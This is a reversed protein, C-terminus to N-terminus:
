RGTFIQKVTRIETKSLFGALVLGAPYVCTLILKQVSGMPLLQSAAYIIIIILLIKLLRGKEFPIPFLRRTIAYITIMMIFSAIMYSLAAGTAGYVPILFLNLIILSAAGAGRAVAVWFSKNSYYIGPLQLFYGAHFIYGMAVVPVIGTSGWYSSGYLTISGIRLRVIDNTWVLLLVWLFGLIVFVYTAIRAFLLGKDKNNEEGLFFPQWSMNFAMVVLFMLMGLKFGASFIGVTDLDTMWSLMYRGAMDMIMAFIGSPLFPLGFKILTKWRELSAGSFTMKKVIVPFTAIFVTGSALLNGLLVGEIGKNLVLVLLINLGMTLTVNLLSFAVFPLPKEEARFILMPVSWMVDLAIIAGLYSIFEPKRIGLLPESLPENLLLMLFLFMLSSIFFSIYASALIGPREEPPAPVYHKMLSADLGYHLVVAMFGLFTYALSIVGYEAPSFVNTYLPLLLFTVLRALIHGTGYLVSQRSLARIKDKM